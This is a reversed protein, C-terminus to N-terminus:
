RKEAISYGDKESLGAQRRINEKNKDLYAQYIADADFGAKLCMGVYFHLIDVLEEEIASMNLPQPNKWWKFNVEDLLEALESIIALIERQIWTEMDGDLQRQKVLEEDFAKQLAFIHELKDKTSTM